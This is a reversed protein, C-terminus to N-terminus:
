DHRPGGVTFYFTAGHGVESEAWVEGGHRAVIREVIALGVGTGEYDEARHLRQFVGFLKHAYRPDFGVGNDRVYYADNECGVEIRADPQGASFKLANSLLNQFVQRLLVPDACCPRLESITVIATPDEEAATLHELASRAVHATDVVQTTPTQRGLRSFVLLDDILKGMERGGKQILGLYRQAEDPMDAGYSTELIAAFGSITRLPARLDHSVSYAFAELDLNAAKLDRTAARIETSAHATTAAEVVRGEADAIGSATLSVEVRTGDKRLRITEYHSDTEGALVRALIEKDEGLHDEPVLIATSRGIAEESRYGYLREAGRNWSTITGQRDKTIIADDVSEAVAALHKIEVAATLEAHKRATIDKAVAYILEREADLTTSWALWRYTDDHTRCRSEFAVVEGPAAFLQERAAQTIAMDDSHTLESLPRKLLEAVPHGLLAEWRASLQTLRGDLGAVCLMDPCMDFFRDSVSQTRPGPRDQLLTEM